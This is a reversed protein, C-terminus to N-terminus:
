EAYIQMEPRLETQHFGPHGVATSYLRNNHLPMCGYNPFVGSSARSRKPVKPHVSVYSASYDSPVFMSRTRTRSQSSFSLRHDRELTMKAQSPPHRTKVSHSRKSRQPDRSMARIYQYDEKSNSLTNYMLSDQNCHTVGYSNSSGTHKFDPCSYEKHLTLNRPLATSELRHQPYNHMSRSPKM